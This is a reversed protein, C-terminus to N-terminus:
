RSLSCFNMLVILLESSLLWKRDTGGQGMLLRVSWIMEEGMMLWFAYDSCIM